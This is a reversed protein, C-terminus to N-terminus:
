KESDIQAYDARAIAGRDRYTAQAHIVCLLDHTMLHVASCDQFIRWRREQFCFRTMRMSSAADAQVPATAGPLFRPEAAAQHYSRKKWDGRGAERLEKELAERRANFADWLGVQKLRESRDQSNEKSQAM